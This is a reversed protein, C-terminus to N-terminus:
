EDFQIETLNFIPGDSCVMKYGKSTSVACGQCVGVGCAMHEEMSVQWQSTNEGVCNQISKLMQWPGCAFGKFDTPFTGKQTELIETVLGHHGMSGDDTALHVQVGADKLEELQFFESEDRAGWLLLISKKKKLLEDILFLVPAVGMGGAVILATSFDGQYEFPKGLPGLLDFENGPKVSQIQKTGQGVIRYLLSITGSKQDRRHISFPRRLLPDSGMSTKLHIFQGPHCQQSLDSAELEM